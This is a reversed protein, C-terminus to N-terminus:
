SDYIRERTYTVTTQLPSAASVPMWHMSTYPKITGYHYDSDYVVKKNKLLLLLEKDIIAELSAFEFKVQLNKADVDGKM